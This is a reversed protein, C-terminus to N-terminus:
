FTNWKSGLSNYIRLVGYNTNIIKVSAGDILDSANATITINNTGAFGAEDKFIFFTGSSTSALLPLTVTIANSTTNYANFTGLPSSTPASGLSCDLSLLAHLSFDMDKSVHLKENSVDYTLSHLQNLGSDSGVPGVCLISGSTGSSIVSGITLNAAAGQNGQYGQPGQSGTNGQNGM